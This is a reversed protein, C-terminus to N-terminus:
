STECWSKIFNERCSNVRADCRDDELYDKAAYKSFHLIRFNNSKSFKFNERFNLKPWFWRSHCKYENMTKEPTNMFTYTYICQQHSMGGATRSYSTMHCLHWTVDGALIIWALNFWSENKLGKKSKFWIQLDALHVNWVKQGYIVGKSSLKQPWSDPFSLNYRWYTPLIM